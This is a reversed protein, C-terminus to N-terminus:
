AKRFTIKGERVMDDIVDRTFRDALEAAQEETLDQNRASVERRL